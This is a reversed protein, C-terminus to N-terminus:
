ICVYNKFAGWGHKNPVVDNKTMKPLVGSSNVQYLIVFFNLVPAKKKSETKIVIIDLFNQVRLM